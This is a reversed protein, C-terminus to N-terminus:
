CGDSLPPPAVDAPGDKSARRYAARAHRALRSSYSTYDYCGGQNLGGIVGVIEQGHATVRLWPAGSTGGVFGRCDFSPFGETLYVKSACTIPSNTSGAPYGTIMVREGRVAASGLDYGGTVQEIETKEGNITQPAVTLFAVDARPDQRTIWEREVYAGAVTWRGYPAQAGRQGPVFVMGVGSGAVCHAATILTNGRPSHVVSATCTHRTAGGSAYLAGIEPMGASEAATPMLVVRVPSAKAPTRLTLALATVPVALSVLVLGILVAKPAFM